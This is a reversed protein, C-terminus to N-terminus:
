GDIIPPEHRPPAIAARKPPADIEVEPGDAQSRRLAALREKIKALPDVIEIQHHVTSESKEKFLGISKGLRDLAGIKDHLKIRIIARGEADYTEWIESVAAKQEDTWKDTDKVVVCGGKIEMYDTIRAYSIAGLEGIVRSAQLGYREQMLKAIAEAVHPRDRVQRAVVGPNKKSFGARLGAAKLNLDVLYQLVFSQERDSLGTAWAPTSATAPVPKTM